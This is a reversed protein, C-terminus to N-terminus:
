STGQFQDRDREHSFESTAFFGSASASGGRAAALDIASKAFIFAVGRTTLIAVLVGAFVDSLYHAGVVVRSMAVITAVLSYFLIHQPWLFWLATMLAAITASHGSPFSWLDPRLSLWTFDYAGSSFLLKPRPRGFIFKLLDVVIGSAAISLFLFAPIASFARMCDAFRRLRSSQGGWHLAVFGFGFAALYGYTLGLRGTFDFLARLDPDRAHLFLAVPRDIVLISLAIVMTTAFAALLARAATGRLTQCGLAWIAEAGGGLEGYLRRLPPTALGDRAVIWWYLLATTGYVLLGAFVVDSLFHAGQVIRALGIVAGITLAAAMAARRRGGRPLLFAFATLSFGVAAHGSVFACNNVCETAPLTAPTFRRTGGFAEIQTPRARGWHDKLLTNALLGPGLALSSVLFIIARRDLRWLPRAVLFLWIAATAALALVAWVMWPVARYILLVPLWDASIFGRGSVYFWRSVALDIQPALLFTVVGLTLLGAYLAVQRM